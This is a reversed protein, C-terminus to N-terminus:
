NVLFFRSFWREEPAVRRSKAGVGGLSNQNRVILSNTTAAKLYMQLSNVWEISFLWRNKNLFDPSIVTIFVRNM